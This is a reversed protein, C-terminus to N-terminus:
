NLIIIKEERSEKKQETESISIMRLKRCRRSPNRQNRDQSLFTM